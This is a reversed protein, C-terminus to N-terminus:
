AKPPPPPPPIPAKYEKSRGQRVYDEYAYARALIIEVKEEHYARSEIAQDVCRLRLRETRQIRLQALAMLGVFSGVLIAWIM